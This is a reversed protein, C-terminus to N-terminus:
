DAVCRVSKSYSTAAIVNVNTQENTFYINYKNIGYSNSCWYNGYLGRYEFTTYYYQGAAPLFLADGIKLGNSFNDRSSIWSDGEFIQANNAMVNAWETKAPVRWGVPCPNATIMDWDDDSEPSTGGRNPWDTFSINTEPDQDEEQTVFPIAVGWKYKAGHIAAAPTFPDATEDAGLNHCMFNLWVNPNKSVYAGCSNCDQLSVSLGLAQDNAATSYSADSNYIAYLKLKNGTTRTTGQLESNLEARYYVTVKCAANINDATAYDPSDPVISEISVGSTEEYAFRVHSVPKSPTFTYVQVGSYPATAGDQSERNTFNTKQSQRDSVPICNNAGDNGLALDFRTKGTLAGSGHPLFAPNLRGDKTWNWGNWIYIGAPVTTGLGNNYVMTGRLEMNVDATAATIGLFVRSGFPISDPSTITVNSLLLGGKKTSNLDLLVGKAPKELSGIMIQAPVNACAFFLLASFLFLKNM